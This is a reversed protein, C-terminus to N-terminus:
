RTWGKPFAKQIRRRILRRKTNYSTEDLDLLDRIEGPPVGDIDGEVITTAVEDDAFLDLVSRLIREAEQREGLEVEATKGADPVPLSEGDDSANVLLLEPHRGATKRDSSAISRMAEALFRVVSTGRPCLRRADLARLVAEQLLDDASSVGTGRSYRSAVAQLRALDPDSLSEIAERVEDVSLHEDAHAEMRFRIGQEAISGLCRDASARSFFDAGM